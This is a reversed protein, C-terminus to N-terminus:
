CCILPVMDGEGCEAAWLSHCIGSPRHLKSRSALKNYVGLGLVVGIDPIRCFVHHSKLSLRRFLCMLQSCCCKSKAKNIRM